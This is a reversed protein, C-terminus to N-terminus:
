TSEGLSSSVSEKALRSHLRDRQRQILRTQDPREKAIPQSLWADLATLAIRPSGVEDLLEAARQYTWPTDVGLEIGHLLTALERATDGRVSSLGTGALTWGDVTSIPVPLPDGLVVVGEPDSKRWWAMTLGYGHKGDDCGGVM